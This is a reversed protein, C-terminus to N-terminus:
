GPTSERKGSFRPYKVPAAPLRQNHQQNGKHQDIKCNAFLKLRQQKQGNRDTHKQGVQRACAHEMQIQKNCGIVHNICQLCNLFFRVQIGKYLNAIFHQRGKVYQLPFPKGLLGQKCKLCVAKQFSIQLSQYLHDIRYIVDLYQM